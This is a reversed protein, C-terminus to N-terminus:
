EVEGNGDPTTLFRGWRQMVSRRPELVDSRRYARETQDPVVHALAAEAVEGAVGHESAWDRFSSRFGHITTGFRIPRLLELVSTGGIPRGAIVGPFLLEDRRMAALLKLIDAAADSLPVRHERHSKM